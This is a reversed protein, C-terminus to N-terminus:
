EIENVDLDGLKKAEEYEAMWEKHDSDTTEVKKVFMKYSDELQEDQLRWKTDGPFNVKYSNMQDLFRAQWGSYTWTMSKVVEDPIVALNLLVMVLDSQELLMHRYTEVM